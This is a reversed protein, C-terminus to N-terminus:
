SSGLPTRSKVRPTTRPRDRLLALSAQAILNLYKHGARLVIDVLGHGRYGASLNPMYGLSRQFDNTFHHLLEGRKEHNDVQM